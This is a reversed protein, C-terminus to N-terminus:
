KSPQEWPPWSARPSVCRYGFGADHALSVWGPPAVDLMTLHGIGVLPM